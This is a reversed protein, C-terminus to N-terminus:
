KSAKRGKHKARKQKFNMWDVWLPGAICITSYVGSVMGIILPFSFSIISTVNFIVAVVSVAILVLVTSITTNISRALSQNISTNVLEQTSINKNLLKKNERVRDYVVITDNISYGLITLCVAMFNVDIPIRFLIFTSLVILLDHFLAVIGTVGASLGSIRKFRFAIYVVLIVAALLIAVLCKTFFTKGMSPKVDNASLIKINNESFKDALASTIKTQIEASIGEESSFSLEVFKSSDAFNEGEKASVSQGVIDGTIKEFEDTNIEGEYSYSLMTGGKFDISMEVGFIAGIILAIIIVSTSAIYFIKRKGVIDYTKTM